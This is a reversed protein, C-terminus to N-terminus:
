EIAHPPIGCSCLFATAPFYTFGENTMDHGTFTKTNLLLYCIFSGFCFIILDINNIITIIATKVMGALGESGGFSDNSYPFSEEVVAADSANIALPLL